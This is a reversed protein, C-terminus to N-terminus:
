ARCGKRGKGADGGGGDLQAAENELAKVQEKLSSVRVGLYISVTTPILIAALLSAVILKKLVWVRRKRKSSTVDSM